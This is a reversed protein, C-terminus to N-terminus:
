FIDANLNQFITKASAFTETDYLVLFIHMNTQKLFPIITNLAVKIAQNKPYGYIGASILPFAISKARYQEALNLSNLYCNTLLIKENKTGGQWIPGVTHIIYKSKLNYGNTIKAQGTKCGKLTACEKRLQPGAARHIAGDVGGGGLLSSNAANVIIETELLTIDQCLINFPM